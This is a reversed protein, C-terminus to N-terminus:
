ITMYPWHSVTMRLVTPFSFMTISCTQNRLLQPSSMRNRSRNSIRIIATPCFKLTPEKSVAGTATVAGSSTKTRTPTPQSANRVDKQMKVKPCCHPIVTSFCSGAKSNKGSSITFITSRPHIDTLYTYLGGSFQLQQQCFPCIFEQKESM